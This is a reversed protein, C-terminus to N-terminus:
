NSEKGSTFRLEPCIKDHKAQIYETVINPEKKQRPKRKYIVRNWSIRMDKTIEHLGFGLVVWVVCVLLAAGPLFGITWAIHPTFLLGAFGLGLTISLIIVLLALLMCKIVQRVYPCLNYEQHHDFYDTLRYHWSNKNLTLM